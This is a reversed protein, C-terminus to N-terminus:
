KEINNYIKWKEDRGNYDHFIAKNQPNDFGEHYDTNEIGVKGCLNFVLNNLTDMWGIHKEVSLFLNYNEEIFKYCREYCEIFVDRNLFHGGCCGYWDVTHNKNFVSCILKTEDSLQNGGPIVQTFDFNFNVISIQNQIFIDDEMLLIYKTDTSNIFSYLRNLYELGEEKNWGYCHTKDLVMKHNHGWLGIHYNYYIYECDYKKATLKYDIGKDSVIRVHVNPYISRFQSLIRNTSYDNNYVPYYVSFNNM